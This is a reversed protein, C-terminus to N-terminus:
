AGAREPVDPLDPRADRGQLPLLGTPDRVSERRFAIQPRRFVTARARPVDYRYITTPAAFSTYSFFRRWMAAGAASAARRASVRCPSRVSSGDTSATSRSSRTPTTCTLSSSAGASPASARWQTGWGAARTERWHSPEPHRTDIAVIRGRPADKDTKFWFIPGDNDIFDYHADFSNLLEVTKSGQHKLDQYFVGNKPDDGPSVGIVLYRGDDSVGGGMFWDKHDPRAYVLRDGAQPTGLRHFYIKQNYNAAKMQEASAPPDYASYFFGSDDRAWSPQSFKSWHIVDPADRGTAVDRVHITEWDSGAESLTYAMLAGDQSVGLTRVAVTGDKSLTNPDLLVRAPATLSSQTYYVSQNQLGTNHTYFYHGGQRFPTGYREYNVLQTLRAKLPARTPLADLYGFTVKDEAEVWAM